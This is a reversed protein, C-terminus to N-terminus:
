QKTKGGTQFTWRPCRTIPVQVSLEDIPEKCKVSTVHGQPHPPTLIYSKKPSKQWIKVKNGGPADTNWLCMDLKVFYQAARTDPVDTSFNYLIFKQSVSINRAQELLRFLLKRYELLQLNKHERGSLNAPPM